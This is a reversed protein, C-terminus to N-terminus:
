GNVVEKLAAPDPFVEIVGRQPPSPPSAPVVFKQIGLLKTEDDIDTYIRHVTM